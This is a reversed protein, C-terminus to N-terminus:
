FFLNACALARKTGVVDHVRIYDVVGKTALFTTTIHTELDRENYAIDTILNFFSKRSHGVLIKMGFKSFSDINKLIEVAQLPTTGFGIGPDLIIRDKNINNQELKETIEEFKNIIFETPNEATIINNPDAPIGLNHMLIIQAPYEQLLDIIRADSICSVDNIIDLGLDLAMKFTQYNRSDLSIKTSTGRTMEIAIPLIKELRLWEAEHGLTQVLGPAQKHTPLLNVRTSEGGIDIIEVQNQIFYEITRVADNAALNKGGDSFSDPTINLVAVIKPLKFM